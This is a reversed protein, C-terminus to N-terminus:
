KWKVKLNDCDYEVIKAEEKELLKYFMLIEGKSALTHFTGFRYVNILGGEDIYKWKGNEFSIYSSIEKLTNNNM